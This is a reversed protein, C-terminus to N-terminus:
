LLSKPEREIDQKAQCEIKVEKAAILMISAVSAFLFIIFLLIYYVIM